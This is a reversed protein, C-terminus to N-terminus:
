LDRRLRFEMAFIGALYIVYDMQLDCIEQLSSQILDYGGSLHSSAIFFGSPNNRGLPIVM